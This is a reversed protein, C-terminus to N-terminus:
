EYETEKDALLEVAPLDIELSALFNPSWSFNM